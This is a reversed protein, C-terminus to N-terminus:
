KGSKDRGLMTNIFDKLKSFNPKYPATKKYVRKFIPSLTKTDNSEM